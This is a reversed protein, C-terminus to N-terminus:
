KSDPNAKKDCFWLVVQEELKENFINRMEWVKKVPFIFAVSLRVFGIFFTLEVHLINNFSKGFILLFIISNKNNTIFPM